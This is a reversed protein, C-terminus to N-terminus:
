GLGAHAREAAERAIWARAHARADAESWGLAPAMAVAVAEALALDVRALIALPVRRRLVDDVTIAMEDEVARGVEAWVLPAHPHLRRGLEPRAAIARHLSSVGTGHRRALTTASETDLGLAVGAARQRELWPAFAGQPAWPLMRHATRTRSAQGLARELGDVLVAADARASTFKGGLPIWLGPRPQLMTWERTVSSASGHAQHQLTRVGCFAGRVDRVTWGLGPCRARASALLYEVDAREVRASAPDGAMDTDTTGLLTAGYWPILFFVRGDSPATLLVAEDPALAAALPPMVLHVGKTRRVALSIGHASAIEPLWPGAAVVTEAARVTVDTGAVLDRVRAGSVRDGGALEVARCHNLVVAGAAHAAAVVELVMRADDEGADAYAFGARLGRGELAGFRHLLGSRSYRRHHRAGALDGALLDYLALGFGIALPGKRSDQWIPLLFRLPMVRHPAIRLLRSRERLATRVLGLHGYELYRLGGHILKSSASSTGSAWDNAEILAVSCGRSAADLATWAGYIGGGVVLVDVPRSLRERQQAREAFSPLLQAPSM